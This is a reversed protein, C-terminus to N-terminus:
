NGGEIWVEGDEYFEKKWIPVTKKLTDIACRCAAFADARHASCVVVAVSCEGPVLRGTRHVIALDRVPFENRCLTRVEELKKLAMAEYARYELATVRRGRSNDRVVGEFVVVAGDEPRSMSDRLGAVDIPRDLLIVM